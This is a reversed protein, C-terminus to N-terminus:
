PPIGHRPNPQGPTARGAGWRVAGATAVVEETLMSVPRGESWAAMWGAGPAGAAGGHHRLPSVPRRGVPQAAETEAATTADVTHVAHGMGVSAGCAPSSGDHCAGRGRAAWRPIAGPDRIM